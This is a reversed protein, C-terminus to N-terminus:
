REEWPLMDNKELVSRIEDPRMRSLDKALDRVEIGAHALKQALPRLIGLMRPDAVLILRRADTERCAEEAAAVIDAAFRRDHQDQQAERHDNYAHAQAGPGRATGPKTESYQEADTLRAEPHVLDRVEQLRQGAWSPSDTAKGGLRAPPAEHRDVFYRARASDAVLVCVDYM